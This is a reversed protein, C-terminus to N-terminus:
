ELKLKHKPTNEFDSPHCLGGAQQKPRGARFRQSVHMPKQNHLYYAAFSVQRFGAPRWIQRARRGHWWKLFVDLSEFCASAQVGVPTAIGMAALKLRRTCGVPLSLKASFSKVGMRNPIRRANSTKAANGCTM